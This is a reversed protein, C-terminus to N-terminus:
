CRECSGIEFNGISRLSPFHLAVPIKCFASFLILAFMQFLSLIRSSNEGFLRFNCPKSQLLIRSSFERFPCFDCPKLQLTIGCISKIGRLM